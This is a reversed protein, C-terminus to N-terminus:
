HQNLADQGGCKRAHAMQSTNVSDVGRFMVLSKIPVSVDTDNNQDPQKTGCVRRKSAWVRCFCWTPFEAAGQKSRFVSKTVIFLPLFRDATM